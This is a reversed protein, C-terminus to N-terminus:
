VRSYRRKPMRQNRHSYRRVLRRMTMLNLAGLATARFLVLWAVSALIFLMTNPSITLSTGPVAGSLFFALLSDAMGSEILVFWGLAISITLFVIKRM